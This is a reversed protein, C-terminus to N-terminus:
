GGTEEVLDLSFRAVSARTAALEHLEPAPPSGLHEFPLTSLGTFVLLQLAHARRVTEEDLVLGEDALGATYAAVCRADLEVLGAAARRGIQVDGIVLQGLDFGVPAPLWFGYDILVFCGPSAGPLLNNPSADGHSSLVPLALLEDVYAEVREAAALLRGRLTEDFAREVLPHRWVDEDRLMPLVQHTLRGELYTRVTVPSEGVNRREAVTPSAALQGLLRAARRYRDLDWPTAPHDVAELWVAASQEDLDFVGLARPMSLGPPLRDGLDSRYALHETRWPVSEAAVQRVEEPVDAFLPSRSWNHIHKVFIRYRSTGSPTRATGSVWYRGATTIAPLDYDVEEVHSDVVEVRGTDEGLLRAVMATLEDDDVDAPGLLSRDGM